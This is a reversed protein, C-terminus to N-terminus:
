APFVLSLDLEDYADKPELPTDLVWDSVVDAFLSEAAILRLPYAVGSAVYQSYEMPTAEPDIPLRLIIHYGYNSEVAGSYENEGLALVANEFSEVMQGSRFLYGGPFGQLGPDESKENMLEDFLALKEERTEKADLQRVIKEAEALVEAREEEPLALGADDTTLLLIHKAMMYGNDDAYQLVDEDEVKGGNEGFLSEFARSYLQTMELTYRYLEMTGFQSAVSENFAEESEYMGKVSALDNEIQEVDGETFRVGIAACHSELGKYYRMMAVARAAIYDGWTADSEESVPGTLDAIPGVASEVSQLCFFTWPYFEKWTVDKGDLTFLVLDDEYADPAAKRTETGTGSEAPASPTESPSVPPTEPLPSSQPAETNGACGAVAAIMLLACLLLAIPKKM